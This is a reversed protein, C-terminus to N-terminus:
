GLTQVLDVLPQHVVRLAHPQVHVVQGHVVLVSQMHQTTLKHSQVVNQVGPVARCEKSLQSPTTVQVPLVQGHVVAVLTAEVKAGKDKVAKGQHAHGKGRCVKSRRSRTTAQAPAM